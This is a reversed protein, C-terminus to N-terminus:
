ASQRAIEVIRDLDLSEGLVRALEDLASEVRARQQMGDSDSGLSHLWAARFEARDFLGHV